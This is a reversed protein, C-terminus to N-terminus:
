PSAAAALGLAFAASATNSDELGSGHEDPEDIVCWGETGDLQSDPRLEILEQAAQAVVEPAVELSVDHHLVRSPVRWPAHQPHAQAGLGVVPTGVAAAIHMPGGINSVLVKSHAILAALEGLTLRGALSTGPQQMRRQAGQVLAREEASGTFVIHCSVHRAILDAAMGFRESPYRHAPMGAGPHVVVWPRKLTVGQSALKICLMHLDAASYGFRMRDDGTDFGVARALKLQREVDHCAGPELDAVWDTLLGHPNDSCHALRLPIGALRCLMAAPLASEVCGTFIVAADFREHVLRHVIALEEEAKPQAQAKRGKSWPADYAIVEDVESLYDRAAAGAASALLTIHMDPVGQKLAALAPTTMLVGGLGDLRIALLKRVLPWRSLDPNKM